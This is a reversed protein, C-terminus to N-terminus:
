PSPSPEAPVPSAAAAAARILTSLQDYPLAGENREGNIALTPTLQIGDSTAANTAAIVADQVDGRDMCAAWASTDLGVEVAIEDLRERRFAGENEGSQNAFLWDYFPWYQNQEGACHAAAAAQVSEDYPSSSRRGQFAADHHVIRLTGDPVFTERLLTEIDRAFIGCGPCQFDSWVELTVPADAAGMVDGDVVAGAPIPRAPAVLDGGANSGGAQTMFAFGIVIVGVLLAAGTLLVTPSAWAPRKAATEQRVRREQREARRRDRRTQYNPPRAPDRKQSLTPDELSAAPDDRTGTCPRAAQM